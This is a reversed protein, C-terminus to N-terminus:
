PKDPAAGPRIFYKWKDLDARIALDFFGVMMEEYTQDGWRVSADPDPNHLNNRSNDYLAVAQLMTGAKLARPEALRYSLQWYFDYHARLLTEISGNADVINYDFQKGRLHMHPFFSLLTADNPLTGRAEVRYNDAGPPIVFHDNTLQLTIVRQEPPKKAFVIGISTQDSTAHGHTTYHMQFVLDSGAPVFKAMGAPWNDPSSGPAYVLLIDSDTWHAGHRSDEDTMDSATFPVGVPAHRLWKSDPPRIYVVAHHVNERSSPRIESMQVWKDETFGTPVIEYTYEVDGHAPLAVPKPMKVVVDPQSINWGHVWERPPPADGPNGAPADADAWAVIKQIEAETLSPDNSFRGFRPDAFWPPMKRKAVAAAIEHARSRVDNYTVLPMPAIEGTRHCSQCHQQLIPLVDHYFVPPTVERPKASVKPVQTRAAAFIMLAVAAAFASIKLPV